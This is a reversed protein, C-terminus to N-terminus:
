AESEKNFMNAFYAERFTKGLGRAIPVRDGMRMIIEASNFHNVASFNVIYSRHCKFFCDYACLKEEIHTFTDLAEICKGGEITLRVKRNCAEVYEINYVPVSHFGYQTRVTIKPANESLAKFCDNLVGALKEYKLPKLIYGAAKVDYSEVAFEPSSTIFVIKVDSNFERIEEAAEMGNFLPMIIDLLIVDPKEKRCYEILEDGNDTVYLEVPKAYEEAWRNVANGTQESFRRDDDCVAIKM